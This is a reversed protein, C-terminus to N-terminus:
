HRKKYIIFVLVGITTALFLSVGVIIYVIYNNDEQSIDKSYDVEEPECVQIKNNYENGYEDVVKLFYEGELNCLQSDRDYFEYATSITVNDNPIQGTSTLINLIEEKTLNYGKQTVIAYERFELKPYDEDYVNVLFNSIATNGAKDKAKIRFMYEGARTTDNLYGRIDEIDYDLIENDCEDIVSIFKRFEDIPYNDLTTLSVNEEYTIVPARDDKVTIYVTCYSTNGYIDSVKYEVPYKGPITYNPTYSDSIVEKVCESDDDVIVAQNIFPYLSKFWYPYSLEKTTLVPPTIDYVNVICDQVVINGSRDLARLTLKYSGAEISDSPYYDTEIITINDVNGDTIDKSIVSQYIQEYSIPNDTTTIFQIDKDEYGDNLLYTTALIYPVRGVMLKKVLDETEEIHPREYYDVYYPRDDQEYIYNNNDVGIVEYLDLEKCITINPEFDNNVVQYIIEEGAVVEYKILTYNEFYIYADLEISGLEGKIIGDYRIIGGEVISVIEETIDM